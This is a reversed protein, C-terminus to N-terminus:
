NICSIKIFNEGNIKNLYTIVLYESYYYLDLNNDKM